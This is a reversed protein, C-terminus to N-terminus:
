GKERAERRLIIGEVEDISDLILRADEGFLDSVIKKLQEISPINELSDTDYGPSGKEELTSEIQKKSKKGEKM